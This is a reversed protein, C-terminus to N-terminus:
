RCIDPTAQFSNSRILKSTIHPSILAACLSPTSRQPGRWVSCQAASRSCFWTVPSPFAPSLATPARQRGTPRIASAFRDFATRAPRSGELRKESPKCVAEEAGTSKILTACNSNQDTTTFHLHRTFSPRLGRRPGCGHIRSARPGSCGLRLENANCPGAAV